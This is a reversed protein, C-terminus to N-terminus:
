RLGVVLAVGLTLLLVALGKWRNLPEGFLFWGLLVASAMGIGRKVVEIFGIPAWRFAEIQVALAAAGIVVATGVLLPHAALPRLAQLFLRGQGRLLTWLLLLLAVAATVVPAYWSGAGLAVATQDLVSTCSWLLAVLAMRRVGPERLTSALGKWAGGSRGLVVAGLVVMGAGAYQAAGPAQGRFLWALTTSLVPTFSLLPIMLSLPSLRLADLFLVLALANLLASGALPSLCAVPLGFPERTAAWLALLPAQTLPLLLGLYVPSVERALRKRLADFTAWSVAGVLTFALGIGTILM